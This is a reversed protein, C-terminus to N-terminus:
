PKTIYLYYIVGFVLSIATEYVVPQMTCRM